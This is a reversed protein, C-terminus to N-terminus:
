SREVLETVDNGLLDRLRALARVSRTRVMTSRLGLAAATEAVSRDEWYRLVVIARDRKPLRDLADFLTIRLATDTGSAQRDPVPDTPHERGTRRRYAVFTRVLVIRAYAVPNDIRSWRAYLKGLTIQVLDEALHRDGALLYATRFLHNGRVSVFEAFDDL